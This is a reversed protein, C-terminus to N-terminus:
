KLSIVKFEVRRNKQRGEETDNTDIPQQYAYGKYSLREKEVGHSILYDVVAKARNASLRTNSELSGVNDTHGGIEIVMKPYDVTLLRVLNDLEAKSIDRLTYKNFDFFINSLIITAGVNIAKLKIDKIIEQYSSTAPVNVNESHFLYGETRATIGYNKGSPLSILYKGTSANSSLTAYIEDKELDVIEISSELPDGTEADTITGKMITLRVKKVEVIEQKVITQISSNSCAILNDETGTLMPKEPALFTIRWIDQMGISGERDSSIYAYRGNGTVIFFVDDEPTNIPIGMNVPESWNGDDDLESYFIDYGGITGERKSSFYMTRNDPHIFIGEEDFETNIPAGINRAPGWEGKTTKESVFIDKGGKSPTGFEDKPRESVFYLTKGDSSISISTEHYKTNITKGLAKPKSWNEGKLKSEYLNGDPTGNFTYLISGDPSLGVSADHNDTNISKMNMAPAWKNDGENYSIYLDEFYQNDYDMEGGTSGERRSTFIMMSEDTSIVPGYDAYRSNINAGLNDIFVRTPTENFKEANRCESIRADVDYKNKDIKLKKAQAEYDTNKFDTYHKIAEEFRNTIQYARGILYKIDFCVEKNLKYAKELYSIAKNKQTSYIYCIGIKYNLEANNNNYTSASLYEDLAKSYGGVSNSAFYEDGIRISTLAEKYGNKEATKFESKNIEINIQSYSISAVLLLALTATLINIFTRKM